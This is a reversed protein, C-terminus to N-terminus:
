VSIFEKVRKGESHNHWAVTEPIVFWKLQFQEHGVPCAWNQLSRSLVSLCLYTIHALFHYSLLVIFTALIPSIQYSHTSALSYVQLETWCEAIYQDINGGSVLFLQKHLTNGHCIFYKCGLRSHCRYVSCVTLLIDMLLQEISYLIHKHLWYSIM